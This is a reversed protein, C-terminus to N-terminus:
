YCQPLKGATVPLNVGANVRHGFRDQWTLPMIDVASVPTQDDIRPQCIGQVIPRQVRILAPLVHGM